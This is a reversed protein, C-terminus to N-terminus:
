GDEGFALRDLAAALAGLRESARRRVATLELAAAADPTRSYRRRPTAGSGDPPTGALEAVIERAAAPDGARDLAYALQIRLRESGPFRELAERLLTAAAAPDGQDIRIRALEQYAIEAAWGADPDAALATFRAIAARRQGTRELNVALRLRGEAAEPRVALLRELWALADPYAHAWERDIALGLLADAATPDFELARAFAETASSRRRPPELLALGVATLIEAAAARAEPTAARTGYLRALYAVMATHHDSLTQENAARYRRFLDVHLLLPPLLAEPDATAVAEIVAVVGRLAPRKPDVAESASRPDLAAVAAAAEDRSGAALRSLAAHYARAAARVTRSGGEARAGPEEQGAPPQQPSSPPQPAAAAPDATAAAALAALAIARRLARQV